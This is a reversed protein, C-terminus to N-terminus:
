NISSIKSSFSQSTKFLKAFEPLADVNLSQRQILIDERNKYALKIFSQFEENIFSNVVFSTKFTSM